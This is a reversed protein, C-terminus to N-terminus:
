NYSLHSRSEKVEVWYRGAKESYNESRLTECAVTSCIPRPNPEVDGCLMLLSFLLEHGASCIRCLIRPCTLQVFFPDNCKVSSVDQASSTSTAARSLEWYQKYYDQAYDEFNGMPEALILTRHMGRATATSEFALLQMFFVFSNSIIGVCPWGVHGSPIKAMWYINVFSALNLRSGRIYDMKASSFSVPGLCIRYFIMVELLTPM